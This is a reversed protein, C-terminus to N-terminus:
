AVVIRPRFVRNPSTVRHVGPIWTLMPALLEQTLNTITIPTYEGDRFANRTGAMVPGFRFCAAYDGCHDLIEREADLKMRGYATEPHTEAASSSLFVVYGQRRLVMKAITIPGMVNAAEADPDDTCNRFGTIGACIYTVQAHPLYSPWRLDFSILDRAPPERRTTGAVEYKSLQLEVILASGILGDAGIVLADIM